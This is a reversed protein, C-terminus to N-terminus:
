RGVTELNLMAISDEVPHAKQHMIYHKSLQAHRGPIVGIVNKLQQSNGQEDEAIFHQFYSQNEGGPLLGARNFRTAIHDAALQLGESGLGREQLKHDSLFQVTKMM